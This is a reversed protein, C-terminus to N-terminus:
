LLAGLITVNIRFLVGNENRLKIAETILTNKEQWLHALIIDNIAM